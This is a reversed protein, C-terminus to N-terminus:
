NKALSFRTLENFEEQNVKIVVTPTDPDDYCGEMWLNYLLGGIEDDAQIYLTDRDQTVITFNSIQVLRTNQAERFQQLTVSQVTSCSAVSLGALLTLIVNIKM